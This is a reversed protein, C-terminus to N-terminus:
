TELSAIEHKAEEKEKNLKEIEKLNEQITINDSNKQEKMESEMDNFRKRLRANESESYSTVYNNTPRCASIFTAM